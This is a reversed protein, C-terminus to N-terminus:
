NQQKQEAAFFNETQAKFFQTEIGFFCFLYKEEAYGRPKLVGYERNRIHEYLFSVVREIGNGYVSNGCGRLGVGYNVVHLGREIHSTGTKYTLCVPM